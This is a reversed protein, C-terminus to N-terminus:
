LRAEVLEINADRRLDRLYQQAMLALQEDELQARVRNPNPATFAPAASTLDERDCVYIVHYGTTTRLPRSVDGVKLPAVADRFNARLDSLSVEGLDAATVEPFRTAARPVDACTQAADRAEALRQRAIDTSEADAEQPLRVVLQSLRVLADMNATDMAHRMDHLFVIYYGESTQIPPSVSGIPMETVAAAVEESLSSLATWGLDGGRAASPLASVQQAVAAFSAGAVLQQRMQTAAQYAQRRLQRDSAELFIESVHYQPELRSEEIRRIEADLTADDVRARSGYRASVLRSWTLEAELQRRLTSLRVGMRALDRELDPLSMNNRTAIEEVAADVDGPEGGFELREAEQLKLTDDILTQLVQQRLQRIANPNAQSIGASGVLMQLRQDVDFTTIVEDNVTAAVACMTDVDQASATQGVFLTAAAILSLSRKM